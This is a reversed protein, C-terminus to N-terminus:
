VDPVYTVGYRSSEDVTVEILRLAHNALHSQLRDAIFRAITEATANCTRFPELENLNEHDLEDLTEEIYGSLIKFDLSMGVNDLGQVLVAVTVEFNHGHLHECEGQYGRLAHAASFHGKVRVVYPM